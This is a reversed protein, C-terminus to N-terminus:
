DFPTQLRQHGSKRHRRHRLHPGEDLNQFESARSRHQMRNTAADQAPSQPERRFRSENTGRRYTQGFTIHQQISPRLVFDVHIRTGTRVLEPEFPMNGHITIRSPRRLRIQAKQHCHRNETNRLRKRMLTHGTLRSQAERNTLICELLHQLILHRLILLSAVCQKM